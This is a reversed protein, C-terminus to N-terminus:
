TCQAIEFAVFRRLKYYIWAMALIIAIAMPYYHIFNVVFLIGNKDPILALSLLLGGHLGILVILVRNIVKTKPSPDMLEETIDSPRSETENIQRM